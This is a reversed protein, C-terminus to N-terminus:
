ITYLISVYVYFYIYSTSCEDMDELRNENGRSSIMEGSPAPKSDVETNRM